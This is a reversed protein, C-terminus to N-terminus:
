REEGSLAPRTGLSAIGVAALAAASMPASAILCGAAGVFGITAGATSFTTMLKKDQFM